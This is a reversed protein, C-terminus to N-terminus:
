MNSLELLFFLSFHCYRAITYTTVKDLDKSVICHKKRQLAQQYFIIVSWNELKDVRQHLHRLTPLTKEFASSVYKCSDLFYDSFSSLLLFSSYLRSLLCNPFSVLLSLKSSSLAFLTVTLMQLACWELTLHKM